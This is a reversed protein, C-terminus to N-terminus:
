RGLTKLREPRRVILYILAGLAYTLGVILGWMLRQNNEDTEFRLVEVLAWVWIAFLGLGVMGGFVGGWGSHRPLGCVFPYPTCGM